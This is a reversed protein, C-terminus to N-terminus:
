MYLTNVGADTLVQIVYDYRFLVFGLDSILISVNVFKWSFLDMLLKNLLVCLLLLSYRVIISPGMQVKKKYM